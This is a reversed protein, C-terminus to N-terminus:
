KTAYRALTSVSEPGIACTWRGGESRMVMNLQGQHTVLYHVGNQILVQGAPHHMQRNGCAVVLIARAHLPRYLSCAVAQRGITRQCCLMAQPQNMKMPGVGMASMSGASAMQNYLAALQAPSAQAPAAASLVAVMIAAAAIAAAALGGLSGIWLRRSHPRRPIAQLLAKDLGSTDVPMTRLQALRNVLAEDAADRFHANGTAMNMSAVPDPVRRM